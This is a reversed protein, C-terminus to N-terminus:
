SGSGKRGLDRLKDRLRNAGPTQSKAPRAVRTSKGSSSAESKAATSGTTAEPPQIPGGVPRSSSSSASGSSASSSSGGGGGATSSSSGAAAKINPIASFNVTLTSLLNPDPPTSPDPFVLVADKTNPTAGDQVSVLAKVAIQMNTITTQPGGSARADSQIQDMANKFSQAIHLPLAKQPQSALQAKLQTVQANLAAVQNTLDNNANQLTTIQTQASTLQNQLSSIQADQRTLYTKLDGVAKALAPQLQKYQDINQLNTAADLVQLVQTIDIQTPIVVIGGVGVKTVDIGSRPTDPKKPDNPV